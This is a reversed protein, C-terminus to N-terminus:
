NAGQKDLQAGIEDPNVQEMAARLQTPDLGQETVWRLLMMQVARAIQAGKVEIGAAEAIDAVEGLIETSLQVLLEDPVQGETAEDAISVIEYATNAMAEVPDRAAKIANAVEKAAGKGYLADDAIQMAKAYAPDTAADPEGQQGQPPQAQPQAQPKPAAQPAAPQPLNLLGAM